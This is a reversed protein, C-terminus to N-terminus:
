ANKGLDILKSKKTIVLVKNLKGSKVLKVERSIKALNITDSTKSRRLDFIINNSQQLAGRFAHEITRKGNNIPSKIEWKLGDMLIDPTKINDMNSAPIFEITKGLSSLFIATDLEHNLPQYNNAFIIDGKAM